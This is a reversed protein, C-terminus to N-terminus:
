GGQMKPLQLCVTMFNWGEKFASFIKRTFTLQKEGAPHRFFDMILKSIQKEVRGEM